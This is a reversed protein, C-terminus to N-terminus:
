PLQQVSVLANLTFLRRKSNGTDYGLVLLQGIGTVAWVLYSVGNITVTNTKVVESFFTRAERGKVWGTQHDTSRIRLQFGDHTFMVGDIMRRGDDKGTTDYVTLCNDPQSPEEAVYVPWSGSQNGPPSPFTGIGQDVLLQRVIEAPSNALSSSM